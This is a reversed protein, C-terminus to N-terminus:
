AEIFNKRGWSHWFTHLCIKQGRISRTTVGNSCGRFASKTFLVGRDIEDFNLILKLYKMQFKSLRVCQKDIADKNCIYNTRMTLCFDIADQLLPCLEAEYFIM